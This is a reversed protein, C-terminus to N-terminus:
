LLCFAMRASDSKDYKYGYAADVARDNANHGRQKGAPDPWPFNNNGLPPLPKGAARM